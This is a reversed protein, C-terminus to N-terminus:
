AREIPHARPGTGPAISRWRTRTQVTVAPDHCLIGIRHNRLVCSQFGTGRSPPKDGSSTATKSAGIMALIDRQGSEQWGKRSRTTAWFSCIRIALVRSLIPSAFPRECERRARERSSASRRSTAEPRPRVFLCALGGGKEEKAGVHIGGRHVQVPSDGLLSNWASNMDAHGYLVVNRDRDAEPNFKTDAIVEFSGNGRYWFTEADFRAKALAWANEEPTGHTGYVLVVRNRFADKFAGNRCPGKVAASPKGTLKWKGEVRELWTTKEASRISKLSDGDLSVTIEKDSPLHSVDLALLAVNKTTGKFSSKAPDHDINITSLENPKLQAEVRAWFCDASVGPSATAFEVHRVDKREPLTREKFFEFM